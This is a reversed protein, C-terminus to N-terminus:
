RDGACLGGHMSTIRSTYDLILRVSAAHTDRRVERGEEGSGKKFFHVNKQLELPLM